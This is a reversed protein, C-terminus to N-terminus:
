FVHSHVLHYDMVNNEEMNQHLTIVLENDEKHEVQVVLKVALVGRRGNEGHVM